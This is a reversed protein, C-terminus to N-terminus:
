VWRESKAANQLSGIKDDDYSTIQSPEIGLKIGLNTAGGVFNIEDNRVRLGVGSGAQIEDITISKQINM